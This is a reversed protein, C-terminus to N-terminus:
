ASAATLIRRLTERIWTEGALAVRDLEEAIEAFPKSAKAYTRTLYIGKSLEHFELMGGGTDEGMRAAAELVPMVRPNVTKRFKFVKARCVLTGKDPVYEFYMQGHPWDFGALNAANLRVARGGIHRTYRVLIYDAEDRTM